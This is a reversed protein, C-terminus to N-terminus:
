GVIIEVPIENKNYIHWDGGFRIHAEDGRLFGTYEKDKWFYAYDELFRFTVTDGKDSPAKLGAMVLQHIAASRSLNNMRAYADIQDCENEAFKGTLPITKGM